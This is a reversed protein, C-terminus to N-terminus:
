TRITGLLADLEAVTGYAHICPADKSIHEGGYLMTNGTDGLKTYLPMLRFHLLPM